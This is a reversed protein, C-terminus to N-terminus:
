KAKVKHLIIKFAEKTGSSSEWAWKSTSAKDKSRVRNSTEM